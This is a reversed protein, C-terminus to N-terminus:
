IKGQVDSREKFIQIIKAHLSGAALRIDIEQGPVADWARHLILGDPRRRTISYGRGLVALPNLSSLVVMAAHTRNNRLVAQKEWATRLAKGLGTVGERNGGIRSRLDLHELRVRLHNWAQRSIERLHALSLRMRELRDDLAIRADALRRKPDRLRGQLDAIRNRHQVTEQRLRRILRLRLSAVVELLEARLPV